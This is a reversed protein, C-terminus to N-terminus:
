KIEFGLNIESIIEKEGAFVSSSPFPAAAMRMVGGKNNDELYNSNYVEEFFVLKGLEIGLSKEFLESKDLADKVAKNRALNLSDELNKVKFEVSFLRFFDETEIASKDILDPIITEKSEGEITIRIQNSVEYAIIEPSNYTGGYEDKKEIWREVPRISFKDTIINNQEVGLSDAIEIIKIVNLNVNELASKINNERSEVGLHVIAFDASQKVSGTGSITFINSKSINSSSLNRESLVEYTLQNTTDSDAKNDNTESTCSFLLIAIIPIILYKKILPDKSLILKM